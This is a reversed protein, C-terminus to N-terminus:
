HSEEQKKRENRQDMELKKNLHAEIRKGVFWLLFIIAGVIVTRIPQKVLSVIDYGIFSITFIMVMKGTIVALMYQAISIRSLGAVVNVLASPTFPFCLLIFLPGFGHRDVWHTLRAAQKNKKLFRFLKAEGYRRVLMFVLLAGASAGIWSFLFGFWLGFANANALVFVFLPLFPLFAELLPLLIGPVPGFSRYQQILDMINELTFWDKFAQIDM